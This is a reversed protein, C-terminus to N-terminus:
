MFSSLNPTFFTSSVCYRIGLQRAFYNLPTHNGGMYSLAIKM